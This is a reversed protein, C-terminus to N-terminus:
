HEGIIVHPMTAQPVSLPARAQLEHGMSASYVLHKSLERFGEAHDFKYCHFLINSATCEGEAHGLQYDLCFSHRHAQYWAAYWGKFNSIPILYEYAAILYWVERFETEAVGFHAEGHLVAFVVQMVRPSVEELVVEAGARGESFGGALLARFYESHEILIKRSVRMSHVVDAPPEESSQRDPAYV